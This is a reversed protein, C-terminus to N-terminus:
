LNFHFVPMHPYWNPAWCLVQCRITIHGKSIFYSNTLAVKFLEVIYSIHPLDHSPRHMTLTEKIATIGEDHPINTYISNVNSTCLFTRLPLDAVENLINILHISDRVCFTSLPVMTGIFLDMFQSIKETPGRTGSIVPRGAPNPVNKQIKPLM